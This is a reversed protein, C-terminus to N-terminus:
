DGVKMNRTKQFNEEDKELEERPRGYSCRMREYYAPKGKLRESLEMRSVM